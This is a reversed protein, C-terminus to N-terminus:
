TSVGNMVNTKEYLWQLISLEFEGKFLVGASTQASYIAASGRVLM